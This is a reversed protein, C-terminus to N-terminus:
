AAFSQIRASFFGAGVLGSTVIHFASLSDNPYRASINLFAVEGSTGRLTGDLPAYWSFSWCTFWYNLFILFGYWIFQRNIWTSGGLTGIM